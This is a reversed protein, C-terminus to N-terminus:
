ITQERQKKEQRSREQITAVLKTWNVRAIIINFSIALFVQAHAYGFWIGGLEMQYHFAYLCALPLGIIFFAIFNLIISTRQNLTANIVSM